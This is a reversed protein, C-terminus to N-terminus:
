ARFEIVNLCLEIVLGPQDTRNYARCAGGLSWVMAAVASLGLGMGPVQGTFYREAQYYPQWIKRLDGPPLTRGDDLVRMCVGGPRPDLTIEITPSQQPHFKKANELLEWLILEFTQPRLALLMTKLTPDAYHLTVPPLELAEQITGLLAPVEALTFRDGNPHTLNSAEIFNFIDEIAHRLRQAGHRAMELLPGLEEKSLTAYEKSFIEVTGLLVGLPTGLKHRVMSNFQWIEKQQLINATIERLHLLYENHPPTAIAAANVRLWCESAHPSAPRVLYSSSNTTLLQAIGIQPNAQPELNYQRRAVTLFDEAPLAGDPPLGLLLRASNNAYHVKGDQSVIVYGDDAQEVAWEFRARETLLRRYRNLRLVGRVRARLETRDFPKSIFDDAGTEIGLLRSERDDLATVMIIPVDGLEADARLRRCVEFGDMEPMMVDLLILDPRLTAAKVLAEAGSSAHALQYDEMHLLGELTELSLPSDDVILVTNTHPM